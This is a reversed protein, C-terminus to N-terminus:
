VRAGLHDGIAQHLQRLTDVDGPDRRWQRYLDDIRAAMLRQKGPGPHSGDPPNVLAAPRSGGIRHGTRRDFHEQYHGGRAGPSSVVIHPGGIRVVTGTCRRARRLDGSTEILVEDGPALAALQDATLRNAASM